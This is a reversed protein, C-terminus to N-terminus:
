QPSRYRRRGEIGPTIWKKWPLFMGMAWTALVLITLPITVAWYYKFGAGIIPAGNGDWNFMPMAFIAESSTLLMCILFSLSSVAIFTGPLFIMGLISITKMASGDRKSEVAITRIASSDEKSAKAIVTSTEAIILNAKSNKAAM